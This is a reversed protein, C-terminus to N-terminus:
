CVSGAPPVSSVSSWERNHRPTYGAVSALPFLSGALPLILSTQSPLYGYTQCQVPWADPVMHYIWSSAWHGWILVRVHLWFVSSHLFFCLFSVCFLNFRPFRPFLRLERSTNLVNQKIEQCNKYLHMKVHFNSGHCCMRQRLFPLGTSKYLVKYMMSLYAVWTPLHKIHSWV